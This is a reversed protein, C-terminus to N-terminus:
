VPEGDSPPMPNQLDETLKHVNDKTLGGPMMEADSIGLGEQFGDEHNLEEFFTQFEPSDWDKYRESMPLLKVTYPYLLLTFFDWFVLYNLAWNKPTQHM